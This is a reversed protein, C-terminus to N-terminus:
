FIMMGSLVVRLIQIMLSIGSFEDQFRGDVTIVHVLLSKLFHSGWPAEM